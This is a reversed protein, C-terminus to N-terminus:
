EFNVEVKFGFARCVAWVAVAMTAWRSDKFIAMYGLWLVFALKGLAFLCGATEIAQAEAQAEQRTRRKQRKNYRRWERSSWNGASPIGAQRQDKWGMRVNKM